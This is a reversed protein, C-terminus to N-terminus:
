VRLGHDLRPQNSAERLIVFWMLLTSICLYLLGVKVWASSILGVELLNYVIVLTVLSRTVEMLRVYRGGDLAMGIAVLTIIQIITAGFVLWYPGDLLQLSTWFHLVSVM